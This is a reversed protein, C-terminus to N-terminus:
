CQALCLEEQGLGKDTEVFLPGSLAGVFTASKVGTMYVTGQGNWVSFANITREEAGFAATSIALSIVLGLVIRTLNVM